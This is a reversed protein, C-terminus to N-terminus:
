RRGGLWSMKCARPDQKSGQAKHTSPHDEQRSCEDQLSLVQTCVRGSRVREHAGTPAQGASPPLFTRAPVGPTSWTNLARCGTRRLIDQCEAQDRHPCGQCPVIGQGCLPTEAKLPTNMDGLVVTGHHLPTQALWKEMSHWLKARQKILAEVKSGMPLSLNGPNWATQYVCLLDLAVQFQLRIHLLRGPSLAVYRIGDPPLLSSRVLCLIGTKAPGGSHIAYWQPDSRHHTATSYEFDERWGTEQICVVDIPHGAASEDKLWLLIEQYLTSSLGGCNYTMMRLRRGKRHEALLPVASPQPPRPKGQLLDRLHLHRGRYWTMQDVRNSAKQVARHLARKRPLTQSNWSLPPRPHRSDGLPKAEDHERTTWSAGPDRCHDSSGVRADLVTATTTQILIM